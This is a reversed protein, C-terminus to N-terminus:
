KKLRKNLLSALPITLFSILVWCASYVACIQGFLNFPMRSYDWVNKRLIINFVLGFVFEIVTILTGGLVAKLVYGAKKFNEEIKSLGLFSLGGALLMSWHTFGRWLIEILGYGVAGVSFIMLGAKFEKM